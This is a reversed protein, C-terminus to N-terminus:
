KKAESGLLRETQENRQRHRALRNEFSDSKERGSGLIESRAQGENLFDWAAFDNKALKAPGGRQGAWSEVAKLVAEEGFEACLALYKKRKAPNGGPLRGAMERYKVEFIAYDGAGSDGHEESEKRGPKPSEAEEKKKSFFVEQEKKERPLAKPPPATPSSSSLAAAGEAAGRERELGKGLRFRVEERRPLVGTSRALQGRRVRDRPGITAATGELEARVEEVPRGLFEALPVVPVPAGIRWEGRKVEGMPPLRREIKTWYGWLKGDVTRWTFLMKVRELEVLISSWQDTTMCPLIKAFRRTIDPVHYEFSGNALALGLLKEYHSVCDIRGRSALEELKDSGAIADGDVLRTPM